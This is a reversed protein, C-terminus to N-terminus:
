RRRTAPRALPRTPRPPLALGHGGHAQGVRQELQAVLPHTRARPHPSLSHWSFPHSLLCLPLYYPVVPTRRLLLSHVFACRSLSIARGSLSRDGGAGAVGLLTIEASLSSSRERREIPASCRCFSAAVLVVGYVFTTGAIVASYFRFGDSVGTDNNDSRTSRLFYLSFLLLSTFM